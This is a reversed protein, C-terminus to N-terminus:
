QGSVSLAAAAEAEANQAWAVPGMVSAAVLCSATLMWIKKM